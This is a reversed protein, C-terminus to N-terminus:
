EQMADPAGTAQQQQQQQQGKQQKEAYKKAARADHMEVQVAEALAAQEKEALWQKRSLKQIGQRKSKVKKDVKVKRELEKRVEQQHWPHHRWQLRELQLSLPRWHTGAQRQLELVPHGGRAGGEGEGGGGAPGRWIGKWKRGHHGDAARQHQQPRPRGGAASGTVM